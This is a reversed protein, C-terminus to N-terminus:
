AKDIFDLLEINATKVLEELNGIKYNICINEKSFYIKAMLYGLETVYIDVLTAKGKLTEVELNFFKKM